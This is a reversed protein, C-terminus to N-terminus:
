LLVGHAGFVDRFQDWNPGHYFVTSELTSGRQPKGTDPNIFSIRRGLEPSGWLLAGNAKSYLEQWWPTSTRSPVLCLWEGQHSAIKRAWGTGVGVVRGKKTIQKLPDIPGSLHRGYPPNIFGPISTPWAWTLGCEESPSGVKWETQIYAAGTPNESSTAPDFFVDGIVARVMDMFWPPTQWDQRESSLLAHAGLRNGTAPIGYIPTLPPAPMGPRDYVTLQEAM